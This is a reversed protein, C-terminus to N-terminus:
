SATITGDANVAIKIPTLPTTAPGHLVAANKAPDFMAGHCPCILAQSQASYDVSCGAHTCTSDFAVFNNDSLHILLGPNTQNAITFKKASNVPVDTVRALVNGASKTPAPQTQAVTTATPQTAAGGTTTAKAAVVPQSSGATAPSAHHNLLIAAIVSAAIVTGGGAGVLTFLRRRSMRADRATGHQPVPGRLPLSGAAPSAVPESRPRSPAPLPASPHVSPTAGTTSLIAREVNQPDVIRYYAEVIEVAHRFRQAPEKAMAKRVIQDLEAPLGPRRLSIPPVEAYLHQRAVEERTKGVFPAHGSLLRYLVAGLAYIDTYVDVPKGLLQEPASSESSGEYQQQRNGSEPSTEAQRSMELLRLLGFEAVVAQQDSLLFICSTSLNRHLIARAHAFELASAIHRLCRGVTNLDAPGHQAGLTRVATMPVHPYVLYPIGQYNGYDLVPLIHPHQLSALQMAEQQCRGLFIMQAQSMPGSRSEISPMGIFRLLSPANDQGRALFVPGAKAQELLQELRYNGLVTGVLKAALSHAVM